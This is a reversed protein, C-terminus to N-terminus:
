KKEVRKKKEKKGIVWTKMKEKMKNSRRKRVLKTIGKKGKKRKEEKM